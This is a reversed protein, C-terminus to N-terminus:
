IISKLFFRPPFFLSLLPPLGKEKLILVRTPKEKKEEEGEEQPSDFQSFQVFRGQTGHPFFVGSGCLPSSASVAPGELDGGQDGCGRAELEDEDLRALGKQGRCGWSPSFPHKWGMEHPLPPRPSGLFLSRLLIQVCLKLFLGLPWLQVGHFLLFLVLFLLFRGAIM